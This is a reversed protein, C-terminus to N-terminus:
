FLLVHCTLFLYVCRSHLEQAVLRMPVELGFRLPIRRVCAEDHSYPLCVLVLQTQPYADIVVQRRYITVLHRAVDDDLRFVPVPILRPVVVLHLFPDVGTATSALVNLVHSM